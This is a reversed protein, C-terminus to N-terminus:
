KSHNGLVKPNITETKSCRKLMMHGTPVTMNDATAHRFACHAPRRGDIPTIICGDVRRVEAWTTLAQNRASHFKAITDQDPRRSFINAIQDHTSLFRQVRASHPPGRIRSLRSLTVAARFRGLARPNRIAFTRSFCPTSKL